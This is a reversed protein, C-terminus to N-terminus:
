HHYLFEKTNVLAWVLEGYASYQQRRPKAAMYKRFIEREAASPPRSLVHLYIVQVPDKKWLEPDRRRAENVARNFGRYLMGSNMLWLRQKASVANNRESFMGSDRPPRGFSDLNGSSISGDAIGVAPFNWPLYTFPEPIVSQYREHEGTVAFVADIAVEAELRRVPYVAFLRAAREQEAPLTKWDAQYAASDYIMRLLPKLRGGNRRFEAELFALVEPAAPQPGPDAGFLKAWFGPPPVLGDAPDIIGRGFVWYWLRNVTARAFFPNAEALLWDAFVARPDQTATDIDFSSGDPTRATFCVAEPDNFVIEEKWEDTSKFRIRGFFRAFKERDGESWESTRMGLFTLATVAGLGEPSRDAAARFFNAPAIRFNSGNATLLERTVEPWPRDRRIMDVLYHHYCQVANPWLNIPFESKVRLLDSFRMALMRECGPSALLRDILRIRKGPSRDALFGRTEGITPIRGAIDLTVRRLFVADSVKPVPTLGADKWTKLLVKDLEAGPHPVPVPKAPAPKAAPKAPDKTPKANKRANSRAAKKAAKASNKAAPKAPVPKPDASASWLSCVAATLLLAVFPFRRKM